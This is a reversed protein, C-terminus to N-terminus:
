DDEDSEAVTNNSCCWGGSIKKFGEALGGIKEAIYQGTQAAHDVVAAWQDTSEQFQDIKKMADEPTVGRERVNRLGDAKTRLKIVKKQYIELQEKAMSTSIQKAIVGDYLSDAREKIKEIKANVDSVSLAKREMVKVSDQPIMAVAGNLVFTGLMFFSIKKM